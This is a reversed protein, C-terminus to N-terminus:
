IEIDHGIATCFVEFSTVIEYENMDRMDTRLVFPTYTENWVQDNICDELEYDGDTTVELLYFIIENIITRKHFVAWPEHEGFEEIQENEPLLTPDFQFLSESVEDIIKFKKAQDLLYEVDVINQETYGYLEYLTM